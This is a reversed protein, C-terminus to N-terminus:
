WWWESKWQTLNKENNLNAGKCVNILVNLFAMHVVDNDLDYDDSRVVDNVDMMLMLM